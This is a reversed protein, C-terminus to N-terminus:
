DDLADGGRAGRGGGGKGGRAERIMRMTDKMVEPLALVVKAQETPTLFKATDDLLQQLQEEQPVQDVVAKIQAKLAADSGKSDVLTRLKDFEAKKSERAKQKREMHAKIAASLQVSKKEDLGARSSLEVTLYTQIKQQVRARLETRREGRDGRDARDSRDGRREPPAPAASGPPPPAAMVSSSAVALLLALALRTTM